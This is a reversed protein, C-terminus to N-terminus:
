RSNKLESRFRDCASSRARLSSGATGSTSCNRANMSADRALRAPTVRRRKRDAHDADAREAAVVRPKQAAEGPARAPRADVVDVRGAGRLDGVSSPVRASGSRSANSPWTSATVTATGVGAWASPRGAASPGRRARASPFAAPPRRQGLRVRQDGRRLPRPHQELHPVDLAEVARDARRLRVQVPRPVDLALPQRRELGPAGVDRDHEIQHDM